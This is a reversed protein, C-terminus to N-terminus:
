EMDFICGFSEAVTYTEPYSHENWISDDQRDLPSEPSVDTEQTTRYSTTGSRKRSSLIRHYMLWTSRKYMEEREKQSEENDHFDDNLNSSPPCPRPSSSCSSLSSSSLSSDSRRLEQFHDSSLSELSATSSCSSECMLPNPRSLGQSQIDSSRRNTLFATNNLQSASFQFENTPSCSQSM